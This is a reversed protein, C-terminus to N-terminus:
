NFFLKLEQWLARKSAVNKDLESLNEAKLIKKNDSTYAKYLTAELSIKAPQWNVGFSIIHNYSLIEDLEKRFYKNKEINILALDDLKLSIAGCIKLLLTGELSNLFDEGTYNVLVAVQKLNKGEYVLLPSHDESHNPSDEIAKDICYIPTDIFLSLFNSEPSSM